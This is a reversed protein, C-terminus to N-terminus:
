ATMAAHAAELTTASTAAHDTPLQLQLVQEHQGMINLSLHPAHQPASRLRWTDFCTKTTHSAAHQLHVLENVAELATSLLWVNAVIHTSPVATLPPRMVVLRRQFAAASECSVM